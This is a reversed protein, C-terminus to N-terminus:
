AVKRLPAPPRMLDLCRRFLEDFSEPNHGNSAERVLREARSFSLGQHMLASLVDQHLPRLVAGSQVKARTLESTGNKPRGAFRAFIRACEAWGILRLAGVLSFGGALFGLVFLRLLSGAGWIAAASVLTAGALFGWMFKSM